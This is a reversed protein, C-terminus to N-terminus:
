WSYPIIRRAAESDWPLDFSDPTTYDFMETPMNIVMAESTGMNKM